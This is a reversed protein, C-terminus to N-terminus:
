PETRGSPRRDGPNDAIHGTTTNGMLQKLQKLGHVGLEKGLETWDVSQYRNDTELKGDIKIHQALHKWRGNSRNVLAFFLCGAHPLVHKTMKTIKIGPVSVVKNGDGNGNGNGRKFKGKSPVPVDVLVEETKTEMYDYGTARKMLAVELVRDNYADKGARIANKVEPHKWWWHLLTGYAVGMEAALEKMPMGYQDCFDFALQPHIKANYITSTKANRGNLGSSKKKGDGNSPKKSTPKINNRKFKGM